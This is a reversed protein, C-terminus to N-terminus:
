GNSVTFYQETTCNFNAYCSVEEGIGGFASVIMGVFQVGAQSKFNTAASRGADMLAISQLAFAFVGFGFGTGSRAFISQNGQRYRGLSTAEEVQQTQNLVQAPTRMVGEAFLDNIQQQSVKPTITSMKDYDIISVVYVKTNMKQLQKLDPDSNFSELISKKINVRVAEKTKKKAQRGAGDFDIKSEKLITEVVNGLKGSVEKRTLVKGSFAEFSKMAITKASNPFQNIRGHFVRAMTGGLQESLIDINQKITAQISSVQNRYNQHLVLTKEDFLQTFAFGFTPVQHSNFFDSTTKLLDSQVDKSDFSLSRLIYNKPNSYDLEQLLTSFYTACLEMTDANAIM